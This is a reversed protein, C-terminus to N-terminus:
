NSLFVDEEGILKILQKRARFVRVKVNGETIGLIKAIEKYSMDGYEKLILVEQSKKSLKKLAERAKKISDKKLLDIEGSEPKRHSEYLVKEYAKREREKRKVYNLSANKVVRILWFKADNVTPFVIAKENAKILSDHALDEAVEEDNVIRYSIKFLMQMAADYITKFDVPNSADLGIQSADRNGDINDFM